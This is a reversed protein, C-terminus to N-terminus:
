GKGSYVIAHVEADFATGLLSGWAKHYSQYTGSHDAGPCDLDPADLMEIGFGSAQSDGMVEIRRKQREPPPLSRGGHFDFGLFQTIGTQTETRKFLEVEHEGPPLDSALAYVHTQNDPTMKISHWAGHDISVDWYSPIGEMWTEAFDSLSVSVDTG